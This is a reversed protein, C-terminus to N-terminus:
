YGRLMREQWDEQILVVRDVLNSNDFATRNPVAEVCDRSQCPNTMPTKVCNAVAFTLKPQYVNRMKIYQNMSTYTINPNVILIPRNANMVKKLSHIAM